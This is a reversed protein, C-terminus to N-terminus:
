PVKLLFPASITQLSTESFRGHTWLESQRSGQNQAPQSPNKGPNGWAPHLATHVHAPARRPSCLYRTGEVLVLFTGM